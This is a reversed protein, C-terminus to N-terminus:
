PCPVPGESQSQVTETGSADISVYTNRYILASGETRIVESRCQQSGVNDGFPVSPYILGVDNNTPVENSSSCSAVVCLAVALISFRM